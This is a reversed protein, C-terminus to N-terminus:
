QIDIVVDTEGGANFSDAFLYYVGAAPAAFTISSALAGGSDDDCALESADDDCSSRAHLVTDMGNNVTRATVTAPADLVLAIVQEPGRGGCRGTYNAGQASTNVHVVGVDAAVVMIDAALACSAEAERPGGAASCTPDAPYDTQGDGDNDLGDGCEPPTPPDAEDEDAPEVCGPDLLDVRGDQDNDRTDSCRPAEVTLVGLRFAGSRDAQSTDVVVYYTGEAPRELRVHTGPADASGRNCGVDRPDTCVPRVYLVTPATTEPYETTFEIAGVVGTVRYRYVLEPGANGGCTGVFGPTGSATDGDVFEGGAGLARNLDVIRHAEGCEGAIGETPGAAAACDPDEPYDTAGDEDDDVGNACAPVTALPAEAATGRGPCGPDEPYDTRGNGDNDVGDSCEPAAAPDTEDGDGVALCGPDDPFDVAGDADDDEGNGCGTPPRDGQETPDAASSCDGDFADVLGDADDDIGNSCQTVVPPPTAADDRGGAPLGADPGADGAPMAGGTPTGGGGAGSPSGSGGASAQADIDLELTPPSTNADRAVGAGPAPAPGGTGDDAACASLAFLCAAAVPM